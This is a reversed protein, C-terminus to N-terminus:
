SLAHNPNEQNTALMNSILFRRLLDQCNYVYLQMKSILRPDEVGGVGESIVSERQYREYNMLENEREFRAVEMSGDGDCIV